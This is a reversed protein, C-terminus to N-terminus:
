YIFATQGNVQIYCSNPEGSASTPTGGFPLVVVNKPITQLQSHQSFGQSRDGCFVDITRSQRGLERIWVMRNRFCRYDPPASRAHVTFHVFGCQSQSAGVKISLQPIGSRLNQGQATSAFSFDILLIFCVIQFLFRVGGM